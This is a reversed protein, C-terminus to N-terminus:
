VSSLAVKKTTTGDTVYLYYTGSENRLWFTSKSYSDSDETPLAFKINRDFNFYTVGGSELLSEKGYYTSGGKKIQLYLYSESSSSTAKSYLTSTASYDSDYKSHSKIESSRYFEPIDVISFQATAELSERNAIGSAIYTFPETAASLFGVTEYSGFNKKVQYHLHGIDDSEGYDIIRIKADDFYIANDGVGLHLDCKLELDNDWRLYKETTGYNSISFKSEDVEILKIDYVRVATSGSKYGTIYLRYKSFSATADLDYEAFGAWGTKNSVSHLDFWDTGNNSGQFNWDKAYNTSTCQVAYAKLKKRYPLEIKIWSASSEHTMELYTGSDMDFVKYSNASSASDSATYGYCSNSSMKPMFLGESNLLDIESISVIKSEATNNVYATMYLRYYRYYSPSAITEYDTWGSWAQSTKTSLDTWTSDNNSGQIKFASPCYLDSFSFIRYTDVYKPAGLDIKIWTAAGGHNRTLSNSLLGDFVVYADNSDDDDSAVYDETGSNSLLYKEVVNKYSTSEMFIGSDGFGKAGLSIYSNEETANIEVDRNYLKNFDFEWGAIKATGDNKLLFTHYSTQGFPDSANSAGNVGVLGDDSVFVGTLDSGSLTGAFLLPTAVYTSAIETYGDWNLLWAYKNNKLNLVFASYYTKGDYPFSITCVHSNVFGPSSSILGDMDSSSITFTAVGSSTAATDSLAGSMTFTGELNNGGKIASCEVSITDPDWGWTGSLEYESSATAPNVVISVADDGADGEAGEKVKTLIMRFTFINAEDEVLVQFNFTATDDTMTDCRMYLSDSSVGKTFTGGTQSTTGFKYNGPTLTTESSVATLRTAGKYVVTHNIARGGSGLEGAFPTGDSDCSVAHNPNTHVITYAEHGEFVKFLSLTDYAVLSAGEYMECKIAATKTFSANDMMATTFSFSDSTEGIQESYDGSDYKIYWKYSPTDANQQLATITISSTPTERTGESDCSIVYDDASIFVIKADSGDAGNEGDEGDAGDVGAKSKTLTMKKTISVSGEIDITITVIGQYASMASIYVTDYDYEPLASTCGSDSTSISFEGAEPDAAVATLQTSGKFVLIDTKANSDVGLQGAEPTGSSDCAVTHAENTLIVTYANEGAVGQEGTDGKESYIIGASVEFEFDGYTITCKYIAPGTQSSTDIVVTDSDSGSYISTGGAVIASWLYSCDVVSTGDVNKVLSATFSVSAPAVSSGDYYVSSSMPNISATYGSINTQSDSDLNAWKIVGDDFVLEGDSYIMQSGFAAYPKNTEDLKLYIGDTELGEAYIAIQKLLKNLEIYQRNPEEGYVGTISNESINWGAINGDGVYISGTFSGSSANVVGSFEGDTAYVTGRVTVDNFIASGDGYLIYGAEAGEESTYNESYITGDKHLYIGGGETNSKIYNEDIIWGGIFGATFDGTGEVTLTTGDWVLAGNGFSFKGDDLNIWSYPLETIPDLASEIIGTRIRNGHIETETGDDSNIFSVIGDIDVNDASIQIYGSEDQNAVVIKALTVPNGEDDVSSVRQTISTSNLEIAASVDKYNSLNRACLYKLSNGYIRSVGDENEFSAVLHFYNRFQGAGFDGHAPVAVIEAGTDYFWEGDDEKLILFHDSTGSKTLGVTVLSSECYAIYKTSTDSSSSNIYDKDLEVTSGDPTAVIYKGEPEISGSKDIALFSFRNDLSTQDIKMNPLIVGAFVMANADDHIITRSELKIMDSTIEAVSSNTEELGDELEVTKSMLVSTESENIVMRNYISETEGLNNIGTKTYIRNVQDELNVLRYIMNRLSVDMKPVLWTFSSETIVKGTSKFHALLVFDERLQGASYQNFKPVIQIGDRNEYYWLGDVQRAVFAYPESIGCDIGLTEKEIPTFILYSLGSHNGYSYIHKGTDFLYFENDTTLMMAQKLYDAVGSDDVGRLAILGSESMGDKDRNLMATGIFTNDGVIGLLTSIYLNVIDRIQQENFDSASEAIDKWSSGSFIYITPEETSIFWQGEKGSEVESSSSFVGKFKLANRSYM